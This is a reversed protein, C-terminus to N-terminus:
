EASTPECDNVETTASIAASNQEKKDRYAIFDGILLQVTAMIPVGLFIGWFGFLGGGVAIALLVYIPKVGISGGVIRPQLLNADVQQIVIVLVGAAIAPYLGDSLLIVFVCIVGGFIAGFYPILNMLGVMMGLLIAYPVDIILLGVSIIVGVLLADFVQSYLYGYFIKSTKGAYYSIHEMISPKIILGFLKKLTRLLSERGALMYISIIFAMFIDLLSSAFNAVGQLSALLSDITEKSQLKALLQQLKETLDINELLGGPQFYPEIFEIANNFYDPIAKIFDMLANILAPVAFTIGIALCAILTIYVIGISISRAHKNILALKSRSFLKELKNTPGYLLFALGFGIIFPNLIEVLKGVFGFITDVNDMAKYVVIVAIAFVFASVWRKIGAFRHM